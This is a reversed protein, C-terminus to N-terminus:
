DSGIIQKVEIDILSYKGNTLKVPASLIKHGAFKLLAAEVTEQDHLQILKFPWVEGNKNTKAELLTRISYM